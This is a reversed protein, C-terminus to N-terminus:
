QYNNVTEVTQEIVKILQQNVKESLASVAADLDRDFKDGFEFEDSISLKIWSKDGNIKVEHTIGIELRTV